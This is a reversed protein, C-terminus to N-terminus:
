FQNFDAELTAVTERVATITTLRNPSVSSPKIDPTTEQEKWKVNYGTADGNLHVYYRNAYVSIWCLFRSESSCFTACKTAPQYLSM